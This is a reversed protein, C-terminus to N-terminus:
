NFAMPGPEVKLYVRLAMIFSFASLCKAHYLKSVVRIYHCQLLVGNMCKAPRSVENTFTLCGVAGVKVPM